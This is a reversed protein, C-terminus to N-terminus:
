DFERSGDLLLSEFGKQRCAEYIIVAVANSLNLSRADSKMPIRYCRERNKALLKEPLGSTEKGFILFVEGSFDINDYTKSAKKTIFSFKQQKHIKFFDEISDYYQTDVMHWYDLGARKLHKNRVSFGLPRILHLKAGVAACTRAINGTNQPIKPQYLVINLNLMAENYGPGLNRVIVEPIM